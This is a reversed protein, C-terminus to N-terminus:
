VIADTKRKKSKAVVPAHLELVLEENVSVVAGTKRGFFYKFLIIKRQKTLPRFARYTFGPQRLNLKPMLKDEAM